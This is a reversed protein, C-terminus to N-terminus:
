RAGQPWTNREGRSTLSAMWSATLMSCTGRDARAMVALLLPRTPPRSIMWSWREPPLPLATLLLNTHAPPVKGVRQYTCSHAQLNVCAQQKYYPSCSGGVAKAQLCPSQSCGQPRLRPPARPRPQSGAPDPRGSRHVASGPPQSPRPRGPLALVSSTHVNQDAPAQQVEQGATQSSEVVAGVQSESERM